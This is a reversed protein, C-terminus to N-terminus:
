RRRASSETSVKSLFSLPPPPQSVGFFGLDRPERRLTPPRRQERPVEPPLTVLSPQCMFLDWTNTSLRSDQIWTGGILRSPYANHRPSSLSRLCPGHEPVPVLATQHGATGLTHVEYYPLDGHTYRVQADATSRGGWAEPVPSADSGGILASACPDSKMWTRHAVHLSSSGPGPLSLTWEGAARPAGCALLPRSKRIAHTKEPVRQHYPHCYAVSKKTVNKKKQISTRFAFWIRAKQLNQQHKGPSQSSDNQTKRENKSVSHRRGENQQQKTM